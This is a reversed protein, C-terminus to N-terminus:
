FILQQTVADFLHIKDENFALQIKDGNKLLSAAPVKAIFDKEAFAFHLYYEAGLLEAVDIKALFPAVVHSRKEEPTVIDEPRVGFLVQAQKAKLTAENRGIDEQLVKLSDKYTPDEIERKGKKIKAPGNKQLTELAKKESALLNEYYDKYAKQQAANLAFSQGGVSLRGDAYLASAINMTPSGIFTAVFINAPKDYVERPTGVQQIKGLKMIVIRDAMTMAETQDHTVYVMTNQIEDHLKVLESRMQVRLKADLNSLPEDLLFVSAHHVLARGLAVRQCQGGSLQTPKRKLYEEIQLDKAAQHIREDLEQHNLTRMIKRGTPQHNKDLEPLLFKMGEIGFSLNQYVSLHPYLAYSQFVMAVGRDKPELKNAWKGGIYLDGSTLDELGALMRLTTSKGCGSPGVLVIFEKEKIDLNFDYVAQVRNSYIKNVHQLSVFADKPAVHEDKAHSKAYLNTAKYIAERRKLDEEESALEAKEAAKKAKKEARYAALEEDSYPTGDKHKKRIFNDFVSM